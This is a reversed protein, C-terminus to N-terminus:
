LRGGLIHSGDIGMTRRWGDVERQQEPSPEFGDCLWREAVVPLLTRGGGGGASLPAMVWLALRCRGAHLPEPKDQDGRQTTGTKECMFFRCKACSAGGLPALKGIPHPGHGEGLLQVGDVVPAGPSFRRRSESFMGSAIETLETSSQALVRVLMEPQGTSRAEDSAKLCELARARIKAELEQMAQYYGREYDGM